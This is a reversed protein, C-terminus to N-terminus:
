KLMNRYKKKFTAKTFINNLVDFYYLINGKVPVVCAHFGGAFYHLKEIVTPIFHSTLHQLELNGQVVRALYGQM